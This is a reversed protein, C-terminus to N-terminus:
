PEVVLELQRNLRFSRRHHPTIGYKRIAEYHAATPYGMNHAWGYHPYDKGLQIMLDDRYTKALISAAAISQYTADGKVVCVHPIDSENRFRNGDILLLQPRTGLQAVALNMAHFSAHLINMRDIDDNDVCAIAYAVADRIITDRLSCRRKPSLQKSDNLDENCYGKPLMVAAAVVPGALSGRGAEDCGAELLAPTHCAKLPSQPLHHHASSNM